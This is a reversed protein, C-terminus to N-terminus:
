EMCLRIDRAYRIDQTLSGDCSNQSILSNCQRQCVGSVALVQTSEQIFHIIEIGTILSQRLDM